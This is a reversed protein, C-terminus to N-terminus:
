DNRWKDDTNAGFKASLKHEAAVKFIRPPPPPCAERVRRDARYKAAYLILFM